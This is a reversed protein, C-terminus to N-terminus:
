TPTAGAPRDAVSERYRFPLSRTVIATFPFYFVESAQMASGHLEVGQPVGARGMPDFPALVKRGKNSKPEDLPGPGRSAPGAVDELPVFPTGFPRRRCPLPEQVLSM